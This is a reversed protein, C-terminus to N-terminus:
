NLLSRGSYLPLRISRPIDSHDSNSGLFDPRNDAGDRIVARQMADLCRIEQPGAYGLDYLEAKALICSLLAEAMSAGGWFFDADALLADPNRRYQYRLQYVANPAPFFRIAHRQGTLVVLNLPALSFYEPEGSYLTLQQMIRLQLDSLHEIPGYHFDQGTQYTFPGEMGGFDDPLVYQSMILTYDAGAPINVSTDDLTITDNDTYTDVTYATDQYLFERDASDTPFTTGTGAVVGSDVEVTGTSYPSITNLAATPVIFSWAYPRGDFTPNLFRRCGDGILDPGDIIQNANWGSFARDWGILQAIRRRYDSHDLDLTVKVVAVEAGGMRFGPVLLTLM